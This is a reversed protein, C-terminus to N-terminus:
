LLATATRAFKFPKRSFYFPVCIGGGGVSPLPGISARLRQRHNTRSVPLNMEGFGRGHNIQLDAVILSDSLPPLLYM